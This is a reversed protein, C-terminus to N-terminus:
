LGKTCKYRRRSLSTWESELPLDTTFPSAGIGVLKSAEETFYAVSSFPVVYSSDEVKNFAELLAEKSVLLDTDCFVLIDNPQPRCIQVGLNIAAGRNFQEYPSDAVVFNAESFLNTYHAKVIKFNRRRPSTSPRYPFIFHIM